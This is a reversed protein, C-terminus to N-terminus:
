MNKKKKKIELNKVYNKKVHNKELIFASNQNHPPESLLVSVRRYSTAM